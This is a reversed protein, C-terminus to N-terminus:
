CLVDKFVFCDQDIMTVELVNDCLTVPLLIMDLMKGTRSQKYKDIGHEVAHILFDTFSDIWSM